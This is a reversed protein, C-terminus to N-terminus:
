LHGRNNWSAAGIIDAHNALRAPVLEARAELYHFWRDAKTSIGGGIIILDPWVVTEVLTLYENVLRADGKWGLKKEDRVRAAARAEADRNRMTLHGFETNPVLHGGSFLASGIGTGADVTAAKIASGGIDIGLVVM